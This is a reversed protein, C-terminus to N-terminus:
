SATTGAFAFRDVAAVVRGVNRLSRAVDVGGPHDFSHDAGEIREVTAAGGSELDRLLADDYAHDATGIAVLSRAAPERLAAAVLPDRRLPTLWVLDIATDQTFPTWDVAALGLTTLSKAIVTLRAPRLAVRSAEVAAPVDERLWALREPDPRSAFRQDRGYEPALRLVAAGRGLAASELYYFAPMDCTYGQGPLLIVGHTPQDSWTVLDNAIERGGGGIIRLREHM